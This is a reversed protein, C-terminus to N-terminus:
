GPPGAAASPPRGGFEAGRRLTSSGGRGRRPTPMSGAGDTKDTSAARRRTKSSAPQQQEISSSDMGLDSVTDDDSRGRTCLTTSCRTACRPPRHGADGAAVVPGANAAARSDRGIGTQRGRRLLPGPSPAFPRRDEGDVVGPTRRCSGNSGIQGREPFVPVRESRPTARMQGTRDRAASSAPPRAAPLSVIRRASFNLFAQNAISDLQTGERAMWVTRERRRAPSATGPRRRAGKRVTWWGAGALSVM